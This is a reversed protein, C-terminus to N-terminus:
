TLLIPREMVFTVGEQPGAFYADIDQTHEEATVGWLQCRM